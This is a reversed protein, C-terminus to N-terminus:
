KNKKNKRNKYFWVIFPIILTTMIWKWYEDWFFVIQTWVDKEVEVTDEYVIDKKADGRIVSVVVELKSNGVRMPTVSWSWETYTDGNDVIQVANNEDVIEFAKEEKPSLDILKVEMTETVPIESTRVVDNLSDYISVVAKSKSIRVLVKYTSLIKMKEPIKYVIRGNSLDSSEKVVKTNKVHIIKVNKNPVVEEYSIGESYNESVVVNSETVIPSVSAAVDDKLDFHKSSDLHGFTHSSSQVSRKGSTFCSTM